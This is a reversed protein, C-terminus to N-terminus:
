YKNIDGAMGSRLSTRHVWQEYGKQKRMKMTYLAWRELSEVLWRFWDCMMM